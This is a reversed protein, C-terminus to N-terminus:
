FGSGYPLQAVQVSLIFGLFLTTTFIPKKLNELVVDDLDSSSRAFLKALGAIVVLRVFWSLVFFLVILGIAGLIPWEQVLEWYPLLAEPIWPTADFQTALDEVFVEAEAQTPEAM